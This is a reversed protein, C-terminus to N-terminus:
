LWDGVIVRQAAKLVSEVEIDLMCRSKEPNTCDLPWRDAYLNLCPSCSVKTDYVYTAKPGIPAWYSPSNPGFLGVTPTGMAAALHMIGTDNSIVLDCRRLLAATNELSGSDSADTAHGSYQDMFRRMLPRESATGTLIISSEPNYDNGIREALQVFRELPWRRFELDQSGLHMAIAKRRSVHRTMWDVAWAESKSGCKVPIPMVTDPLTPDVFQALRVFSQWMSRGERFRESHTLFLAKPSDIIPLFGVRYRVGTAALMASGATSRQEFNLIADYSDRRIARISNFASRATLTRQSYEYVSFGAGLTMLERTAAGVLVGIEMESKRAALHEILSRVLISDGMGFVKVVLLRRPVAPLPTNLPQQSAKFGCGLIRECTRTLWPRSSGKVTSVSNRPSIEM